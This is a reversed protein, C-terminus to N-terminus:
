SENQVHVEHVLVAEGKRCRFYPLPVFHFAPCIKQWLPLEAHLDRRIIKESKQACTSM